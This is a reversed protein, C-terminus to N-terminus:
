FSEPKDPDIKDKLNQGKDTLRFMANLDEDYEIDVLGAEYLKMLDNDIDAMVEKYMEPMVIKLRDLDFRFIAEGNPAMGDWIIAGQDELYGIIKDDDKDFMKRRIPLGIINAVM